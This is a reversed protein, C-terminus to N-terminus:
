RVLMRLFTDSVVCDPNEESLVFRKFNCFRCVLSRAAFSRQIRSGCVTGPILWCSRGGNKGGNIGNLVTESFAPCVVAEKACKDHGNRACNKFDWCNIKTAHAGAKKQAIILSWQRIDNLFPKVNPGLDHIMLQSWVDPDRAGITIFYAGRAAIQKLTGM